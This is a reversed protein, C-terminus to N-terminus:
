INLMKLLGGGTVYIKHHQVAVYPDYLPAPLDALQTWKVHYRGSILAPM